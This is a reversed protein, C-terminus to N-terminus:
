PSKRNRLREGPDYVILVSSDPNAVTSRDFTVTFRPVLVSTVIGIFIADTAVVTVTVDSVGRISVWLSLEPDFKLECSSFFMGVARSGHTIRCCTGPTRTSRM